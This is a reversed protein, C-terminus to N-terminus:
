QERYYGGYKSYGRRVQVVIGDKLMAKLGAKTNSMLDDKVFYDEDALRDVDTGYVMNSHYAYVTDDKIDAIKLFFYNTEKGEKEEVTYVDGIQPNNIYTQTDQKNKSRIVLSVPIYLAVLIPLSYLYFPARTAAVREQMDYNNYHAGCHKCIITAGKAAAPWVPVFCFHHYRRYVKIELEPTGCNTCPQNSDVYKKIRVTRSGFVILM